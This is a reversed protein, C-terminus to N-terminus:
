WPLGSVVKEPKRPQMILSEEVLEKNVSEYVWSLVEKQTLKDYPIKLEGNPWSCSLTIFDNGIEDDIYVKVNASTVYGDSERSNLKEIKWVINM